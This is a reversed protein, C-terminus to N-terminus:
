CKWEVVRVEVKEDWFRVPVEDGGMM